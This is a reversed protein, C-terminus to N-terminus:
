KRDTRRRMRADFPVLGDPPTSRPLDDFGAAEEDRSGGKRTIRREVMPSMRAMQEFRIADATSIRLLRPGLKLARLTGADIQKYIQRRSVRWYTALDSTTVYPEPHKQLDLIKRSANPGRKGPKAFEQATNRLKSMRKKQSWDKYM